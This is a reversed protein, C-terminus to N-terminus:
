KPGYHDDVFTGQPIPENYVERYQAILAAQLLDHQQIEGDIKLVHEIQDKWKWHLYQKKDQSPNEPQVTWNFVKDIMRVLTEIM